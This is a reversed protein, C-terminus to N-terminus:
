ALILESTKWGRGVEVERSAVWGCWAWAASSLWGREWCPFPNPSPNEVADFMEVEGSWFVELSASWSFGETDEKGKGTCRLPLDNILEPRHERHLEKGEGDM